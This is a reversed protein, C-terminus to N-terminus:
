VSTSAASDTANLSQRSLVEGQVAITVDEVPISKGSQALARKALAVLGYCCPVEMHAITLSRIDSQRLIEALKDAYFSADDLKPCGVLLKKGALLKGHFGAYAFPVCDAALLVDTGDLFPAGPPILMLQVPWQRLASPTDVGETGASEAQGAAFDMLAAGPCGGHVDQAHAQRAKVEKQRELTRVHEMAAEEDFEEAERETVTIADQPCTGLCAGLGDCYIDKVLRAKGEILQIAGEACSPICEGCGNCREEDIEVIKRIAMTM